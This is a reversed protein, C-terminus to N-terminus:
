LFVDILNGKFLWYYVIYSGAVMMLLASVREVYPMVARLREVVAGKFFAIGLTLLLIVFGMGLAYSVFQLAASGFGNVALSGGVVTLFIPLTCSLSATAFAVGFIFFGKVNVTSPDGLRAAIRATFGASIQRGLLMAIGMLTLVCGIALGLWPVVTVLYRGGATIAAGAGGFLLIFGATIVVSVLAGRALQAPVAMVIIGGGSGSEPSAPAASLERTGLYLGLYAPLMAFGCPNVASVMGAGFAYGLPIVNSVNYVLQTFFQQLAEV